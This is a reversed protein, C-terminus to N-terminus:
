NRIDVDARKNLGYLPRKLLCVTDKSGQVEFGEPQEMYIEDSLDGQIYATVVDMQHVHMEEQVCGALFVRITEYRAVPAFIEEYDVGKRQKCGRVVLRAKYKDISGDQKRKIKFVWRNSLVKKNEPRSVLKWTGHRMLSDYETQM